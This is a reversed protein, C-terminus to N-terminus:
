CRKLSIFCYVLLYEGYTLAAALYYSHLHTTPLSMNDATISVTGDLGGAGVAATSKAAEDFCTVTVGSVADM